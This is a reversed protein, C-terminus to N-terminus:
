PLIDPTASSGFKGEFLAQLVEINNFSAETHIEYAYNFQRLALREPESWDVLQSLEPSEKFDQLYQLYRTQLAGISKNPQPAGGLSYCSGRGPGCPLSAWELAAKYINSEFQGTFDDVNLRRKHKMQYLAALSQELPTFNPVGLQSSVGPWTYDMFQFKGTASSIGQWIILPHKAFSDILPGGFRVLFSHRPNPRQTGEAFSLTELFAQAEATKYVELLAKGKDSLQDLNSIGHGKYIGMQRLKRLVLIQQITLSHAQVDSATLSNLDILHVDVADEWEQLPSYSGKGGNFLARKTEESLAGSAPLQYDRQFKILAETAQADWQQVSPDLYGLYKLKSLSLGSVNNPTLNEYKVTEIYRLGFNQISPLSEQKYREVKGLASQFTLGTSNNGLSPQAYSALYSSILVAGLRTQFPLETM